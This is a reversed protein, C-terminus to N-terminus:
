GSTERHDFVLDSIFIFCIMRFVKSNISSVYYIYMYQLMYLLEINM